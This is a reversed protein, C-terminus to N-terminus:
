SRKRRWGLLGLGMLGSGLLLAAPPIPVAYGEVYSDMVLHYTYTGAPLYSTSRNRNYTVTGTSSGGIDLLYPSGAATATPTFSYSPNYNTQDWAVLVDNVYLKVATSWNVVNIFRNGSGSNSLAYSYSYNDSFNVNKNAGITFTYYYNTITEEKIYGPNALTGGPASAQFSNSTATATNTVSITDLYQYGAPIAVTTYGSTPGASYPGVNPYKAQGSIAADVTETPTTGQVGLTLTDTNTFTINNASAPPALLGMMLLGMIGLLCMRKM